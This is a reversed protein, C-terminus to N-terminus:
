DPGSAQTTSDRNLGQWWLILIGVMPCVAGILCIPKFGYQDVVRGIQHSIGALMLGYVCTFMSIAFGAREPGYLDLPMAYTNVSIVLTFFFSMGIGLTVLLTSDLFPISATLLLMAAAVLCVRFRAAQVGMRPALQYATWGGVLGGLTALIPPIWAFGLNAQAETLGRERVLYATTWTTWLGYLPMTLLITGVLAWLKPDRLVLLSGRLASREAAQSARVKVRRSMALWLPIWLWGLPGAIWFTSQWGFRPAAWGALLIAAVSGVTLGIQNVATGMSRERPPLLFAYAKNSAPIAVSEAVGLLARWVLLSTFSGAYGTMVSALSWLGVAITSVLTLGYRDLLWGMIPASLGYTISFAAVLDGYQANDLRFQARVSPQVAALLNRDLSNLMVSLAFTSVAIWRLNSGVAGWSLLAVAGERGIQASAGALHPLWLGPRLGARSPSNETGGPACRPPARLKLREGRM